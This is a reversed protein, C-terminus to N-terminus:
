VMLLFVVLLLLLMALSLNKNDSVVTSQQRRYSPQRLQHLLPLAGSREAVGDISSSGTTSSVFRLLLM